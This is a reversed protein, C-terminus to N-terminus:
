TPHPSETKKGYRFLILRCKVCRYAELNKIGLGIPILREGGAIQFIGEHMETDWFLQRQSNVYGKEMEADCEPCKKAESM